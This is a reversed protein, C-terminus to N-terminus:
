KGEKCFKEFLLFEMYRSRIKHFYEKNIKSQRQLENLTKKLAIIEATSKFQPWQAQQCKPVHILYRSMHERMSQIRQYRRQEEKWHELAAQYVPILKKTKNYEKHAEQLLKQLYRKRYWSDPESCLADIEMTTEYDIM